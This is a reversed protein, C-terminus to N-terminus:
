VLPNLSSKLAAGLMSERIAMPESAANIRPYKSDATIIRVRTVMPFHSSTRDLPLVPSATFFSIARAGLSALIIVFSPCSFIMGASSRRGPSIMATLDPSLMGASPVTVSPVHMRSSDVRVPSLIGTSLPGPSSTKVAVILLAPYKFIFASLTPSSVANEPIILSTSSAASEFAGIALSASLTEAKKTGM